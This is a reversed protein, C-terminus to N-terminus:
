QLQWEEDSFSHIVSSQHPLGYRKCWKRVSNDSVGFCHGIQVFSTTRILNKLESRTVHPNVYQQPEVDPEQPVRIRKTKGRNSNKYNPTLSHCSPCIVELNEPRSNEHDGDKHHIELAILGTYPNRRNWGCWQCTYNAQQLLYDRITHKLEGHIGNNRGTSTGDLWDQVIKQHRAEASCKSSCFRRQKKQLQKGCYECYRHEMIGRIKNDQFVPFTLLAATAFEVRYGTKM